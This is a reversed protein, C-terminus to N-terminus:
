TFPGSAVYVHDVEGQPRFYVYALAYGNPSRYVWTPGVPKHGDWTYYRRPFTEGLDQPGYVRDPWGLAKQVGEQNLGATVTRVKRSFRSRDLRATLSRPGVFTYLGGWFVALSVSLLCAAALVWRMWEWCEWLESREGKGRCVAM